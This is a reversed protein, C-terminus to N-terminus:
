RSTLDRGPGKLRERVAQGLALVSLAFMLTGLPVHLAPMHAIGLVVQLSALVLFVSAYLVPRPSGGGPRWAVVAALVYLMSAGYMVRAGVSHLVEGHSSSLLLGATAAQFFLSLTQLAIATRVFATGGRRTATVMATTM